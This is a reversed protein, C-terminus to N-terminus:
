TNNRFTSPPKTAESVQKEDVAASKEDNEEKPKEADSITAKAEDTNNTESVAENVDKNDNGLKSEEKVDSNKPKGEEDTTSISDPNQKQLQETQGSPTSEKNETPPTVEPPTINVTHEAVLPPAAEQSVNAGSEPMHKPTESDAM